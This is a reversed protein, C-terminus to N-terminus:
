CLGIGGDLEEIAGAVFLVLLNIMTSVLLVSHVNIFETVTTANSTTSDM